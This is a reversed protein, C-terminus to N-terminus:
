VTDHKTEKIHWQIMAQIVDEATARPSHLNPCLAQAIGLLRGYTFNNVKIELIRSSGLFEKKLDEVGFSQLEGEKDKYM